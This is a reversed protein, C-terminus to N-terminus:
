KSVQLLTKNVDICMTTSDINQYPRDRRLVLLVVVGGEEPSEYAVLCKDVFLM